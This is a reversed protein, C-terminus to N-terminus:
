EKGLVLDVVWCGRVHPGPGRCHNLIDDNDCGADQLADALIPMTSFDRSEYMGQALSRVTDTHWQPSFTVPRFPNGFLERVLNCHERLEATAAIKQQDSIAVSAMASRCYSSVSSALRKEEDHYCSVAASLALEETRSTAGPWDYGKRIQEWDACSTQQADAFRELEGILQKAREHPIHQWIRRCCAVAFLRCKRETVLPWMRRIEWVDSFDSESSFSLWEGETWMEDETM